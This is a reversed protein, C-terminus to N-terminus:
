GVPKNKIFGKSLSKKYPARSFNYFFFGFHVKTKHCSLPVFPFILCNEERFSSPRARQYKAQPM